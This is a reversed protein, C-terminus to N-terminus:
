VLVEVRHSRPMVYPKTCIFNLESACIVISPKSKVILDGLCITPRIQPVLDWADSSTSLTPWDQTEYAAWRARWERDEVLEERRHRGGQFSPWATAWTDEWWRAFSEDSEMISIRNLTDLWWKHVFRPLWARRPTYASTHLPLDAAPAPNSILSAGPVRRPLTGDDNVVIFKTRQPQLYRTRITGWAALTQVRPPLPRYPITLPEFRGVVLLTGIVGCMGTFAGLMFLLM